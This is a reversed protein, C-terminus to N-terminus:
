SRAARILEPLLELADGVIGFRAYQFIAAESDKNIAAIANAAGCGAMHQSAGSIGVAVYLNPKTIKGTLGVQHNSDVWGEDVLPRSAGAMGDLAEALDRILKYNEVAGLGRGGSVIIEADELKPGEAKAPEVIDVRESVSSLDVAVSEVALSAGAEPCEATIATAWVAAVPTGAGAVRYVVRTDGGYASATIDFTDGDAAVETVGMVVASDLRAALRPAITRTAAMQNFLVIRPSQQECYQALAEVAVDAPIDALKADDIQHLAAVGYRGATEAVGAAQAGLTLWVLDSGVSRALSGALSLVEEAGGPLGGREEGWTCVVIANSM